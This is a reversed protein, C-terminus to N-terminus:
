GNLRLARKLVKKNKELRQRCRADDCCYVGRGRLTRGHDVTLQQNVLGLRILDKQARKKGCGRCTREPLHGRRM